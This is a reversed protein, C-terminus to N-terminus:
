QREKILRVVKVNGDLETGDIRFGCKQTYFYVNEDKDAPTILSIRKWDTHSDLLHQIARMGIGKNQYEPVVCLCGLYYDGNGKNEASIVGIPINDCLIIKKPFMKISKQMHEKTRGYAPCEGYRHFDQCFSKNYLDILLDAEDTVACRYSLEM